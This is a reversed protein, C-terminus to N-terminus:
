KYLKGVRHNHLHVADCQMCLCTHMHLTSITELEGDIWSIVNYCRKWSLSSWMGLLQLILELPAHQSVNSTAIPSKYLAHYPNSQITIKSPLPDDLKSTGVVSHTYIHGDVIFGHIIRQIDIQSVPWFIYNGITIVISKWNKAYISLPIM